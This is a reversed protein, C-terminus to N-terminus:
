GAGARLLRRGPRWAGKSSSQADGIARNYSTPGFRRLCYDVAAPRSTALTRELARCLLASPPRFSGPRSRPLTIAMIPQADSSDRRLEGAQQPPPAPARPGSPRRLRAQLASALM